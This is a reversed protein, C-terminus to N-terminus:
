RPHWGARKPPAYRYLVRGTLASRSVPGFHRSDSSAGDNDGRVEVQQGAISHVRKVLLRAPERPDPLAVVHGPRVAWAPGYLLRDGPQFAPLMSPGAVEVRGFCERVWALVAVGALAAAVLAQRDRAACHTPHPVEPVM